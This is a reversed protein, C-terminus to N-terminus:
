QVIIMKVYNKTRSKLVVTHIGIPLNHMQFEVRDPQLTSNHILQGLANYISIEKIEPIGRTLVNIEGSSPTPYIQFVPDYDEDDLGTILNVNVPFTRSEGEDCANMPTVTLIYDGEEEWLVRISGTGQGNVISGGGGASWQYNVDPAAEIAYDAEELGVLSPGEINSPISPATSVLISKDLAQGEGCPNIPTVKVSQQSLVTWEVTIKSTGQGAKITGGTTEWIYETGQLSDVRYEEPTNLCVSGNGQIEGTLEPQTSVLVELASSSGNGCNNKGRVMIANRGPTDWEIVARATGQGELITGGDVRWEYTVGPETSEQVTYVQQSICINDEGFITTLPQPAMCSYNFLTGNEGVAYGTSLDGFSVGTFNQFTGSAMQEWTEGADYTKLVLGKDGVIFGVSEDLFETDNFNRNFSVNIKRWILGQDMTKYISGNNGVVIATNEDLIALSKFDEVGSISIKNWTKGDESRSIWGKGGVIIGINNEFFSIDRYDIADNGPAITSWNVGRNETKAIYGRSGVVYGQNINSFYMGYVNRNTGPNLATWSGGSNTTSIINGNNGSIYGATNSVFYLANFPLSLPRSRVTFTTGGNGTLLILGDEGIIYGRMDTLFQVAAYDNSRGSFRLSWSSGSNTSSIVVGSAAVAYVINSGQRFSIGSISQTTRSNTTAFTLGGNGTRLITGNKGTVVGFLPNNPNFAVKNFDTDMGSNIYAWNRGADETKIITGKDGVAYGVTDNLFHIDNLSSEFGTETIEWSTGGDLTRIIESNSTAIYGTDISVFIVSNLDSQTNIEQQSWDIGGNTSKFLSGDNGTIYVISNSVYKIDKLDVSTGLSIINWIAGGDSTRYATGEQGVILGNQEDYFDLALMLHDSPAEQEIWSLGEDITKLIINEGTIYAVDENVWEIDTFRNGWNGVRRWSQSYSFDYALLLFLSLLLLKKMHVVAVLPEYRYDVLQNLYKVRYFFDV